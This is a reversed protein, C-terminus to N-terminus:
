SQMSRCWLASGCAALHPTRRAKLPSQSRPSYGLMCCGHIVFRVAVLGSSRCISKSARPCTPAPCPHPNLCLRSRSCSRCLTCHAPCHSCLTCPCFIRGLAAHPPDTCACARRASNRGAKHGVCFDASPCCVVGDCSVWPLANGAASCVTVLMECVPVHLSCPLLAQLLPHPLWCVM